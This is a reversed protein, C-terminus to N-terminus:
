YKKVKQFALCEFGLEFRGDEYFPNDECFQTMNKKPPHPTAFENEGRRPQPEMLTLSVNREFLRVSPEIL